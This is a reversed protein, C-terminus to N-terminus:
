KVLHCENQLLFFYMLICISSIFIYIYIRINFLILISCLSCCCDDSFSKLLFFFFIIIIKKDTNFSSSSFCFEFYLSPIIVFFRLLSVDIQEYPIYRCFSRSLLLLLLLLLLYACSRIQLAMLFFNSLLLFKTCMISCQVNEVEAMFLSSFVFSRVVVLFFRV